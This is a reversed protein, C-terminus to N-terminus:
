SNKKEKGNKPLLFSVICFLLGLVLNCCLSLSYHYGELPVVHNPPMFLFMSIIDNSAEVLSAPPWILECLRSPWTQQTCTRPLQPPPKSSSYLDSNVLATAQQPHDKRKKRKKKLQKKHNFIPNQSLSSLSPAETKDSPSFIDVVERLPSPSTTGPNSAPCCQSSLTVSNRLSLFRTVTLLYLLFM